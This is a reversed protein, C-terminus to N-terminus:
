KRGAVVKLVNPAYRRLLYFTLLLIATTVIVAVTFVLIVSLNGSPHLVMFLARHVKGCLIGHTVYIFFSASALFSSVKCIKHKLLWASVNYACLLGVIVNSSKIMKLVTADGESCLMYAIGLGIYLVVSIVTYRGFEVLMDKQNISMYAGWSFFFLGATPFWFKLGFGCATTFWLIGFAIIWYKGGKKLIKNLLPTCLVILMLDRLFWLPYDIPMSCDDLVAGALRGDYMWYCSLISSLSVEPAVSQSAISVPHFLVVALVLLVSVSNWIFYPILLTKKRNNLKQKFKEKTLQIGLFFVYGSIFFYIPVSQGRMFANIFTASARYWSFDNFHVDGVANISFVHIILIVLALPFRLLNLSESRLSNEKRVPVPNNTQIEEM